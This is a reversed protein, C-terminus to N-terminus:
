LMMWSTDRSTGGFGDPSPPGTGGFSELSPPLLTGVVGIIPTTSYPESFRMHSQLQGGSLLYWALLIVILIVVVAVTVM